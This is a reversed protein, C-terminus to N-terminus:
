KFLVRKTTVRGDITKIQIFYLGQDRTKFHIYLKTEGTFKESLVQQGLINIINVEIIKIDSTLTFNDEVVPNPFVELNIPDQNDALLIHSKSTMLLVSFLLIIFGIRKIKKM